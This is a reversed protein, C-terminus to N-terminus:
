SIPAANLAAHSSKRNLRDCEFSTFLISYKKTLKSNQCSAFFRNLMIEDFIEDQKKVKNAGVAFGLTRNHANYDTRDLYQGKKLKREM